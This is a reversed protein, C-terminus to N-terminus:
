LTAKQQDEYKEFFKLSYLFLFLEAPLQITQDTM